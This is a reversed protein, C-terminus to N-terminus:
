RRPEGDRRVRKVSAVVVRSLAKTRLRVEERDGLLRVYGLPGTVSDLQELVKVPPMYAQDALARRAHDPRRALPGRLMATVVEGRGGSRGPPKRGPRAAGLCRSAAYSNDPHKGGRARPAPPMRRM